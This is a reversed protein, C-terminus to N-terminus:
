RNVWLHWHQGWVSVLWNIQVAFWNVRKEILAVGASLPNFCSFNKLLNIIWCHMLDFHPDTLVKQHKNNSWIFYLLFKVYLISFDVNQYIEGIRLFKIRKRTINWKWVGQFCFLLPKLPYLFSVSPSFPNIM